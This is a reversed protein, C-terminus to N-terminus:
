DLIGVTTLPKGQCHKFGEPISDGIIYVYQLLQFLAHNKLLQIDKMWWQEEVYDTPNSIM